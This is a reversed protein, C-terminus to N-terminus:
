VLMMKKHIMAKIEGKTWKLAKDGTILTKLEEALRSTPQIKVLWGEGYPDRNILSPKRLLGENVGVIKGSIPSYIRQVAKGGEVTGLPEFQRVEAGVALPRFTQVTGIIKQAFDDFGVTVLNDEIKAWTHAKTYYLNKPVECIHEGIKVKVL